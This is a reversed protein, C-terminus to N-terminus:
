NMFEMSIRGLPPDNRLSEELEKLEDIGEQLDDDLVKSKISDFVSVFNDYSNFIGVVHMESEEDMYESNYQMDAFESIAEAVNLYDIQIRVADMVTPLEIDNKSFEIVIARPFQAQCVDKDLWVAFSPLQERELTEEDPQFYTFTNM